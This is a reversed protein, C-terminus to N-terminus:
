GNGVRGADGDGGCGAWCVGLTVEGGGGDAAGCLVAFGEAVGNGAADERPITYGGRRRVPSDDRTQM